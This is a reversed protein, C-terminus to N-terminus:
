EKGDETEQNITDWSRDIILDVFHKIWYQQTLKNEARFDGFDQEVEIIPHLAKAVDDRRITADIPFTSKVFNNSQRALTIWKPKSDTFLGILGVDELKQEVDLTLAM